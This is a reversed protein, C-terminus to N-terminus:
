KIYILLDLINYVIILFFFIQNLKVEIFVLIPIGIPFSCNKFIYYM